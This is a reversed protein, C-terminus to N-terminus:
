AFVSITGSVGSRKPASRANSTYGAPGTADGVAGEDPSQSLVRDLTAPDFVDALGLPVGRPRPRLLPSRTDPTKAAQLSDQTM